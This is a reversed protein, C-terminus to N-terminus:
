RVVASGVAASLALERQADLAALRGVLSARMHEYAERGLALRRPAPIQGVSAIMADVMADPDGTVEFSGDTFARRTHGAPTSEYEPMLPASVLGTGFSTGTAGPEVITLGIGFPAIEEAISDAFGEIGRKTAHYYSFNPYTTQGGASSEQLIRGGNQARLHPLAARIVQISGILNTGKVPCIQEDSAEEFAASCGSAPTTSSWTSGAWRPSPETSSTACVM